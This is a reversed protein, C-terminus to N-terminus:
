ECCIEIHELLDAHKDSTFEKDCKPCKLIDVQRQAPVESILSSNQEYIKDNLSRSRPSTTDVNQGTPRIPESFSSLSKLSCFREDSDRSNISNRKDQDGDAPM